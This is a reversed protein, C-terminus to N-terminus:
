PRLMKLFDRGLYTVEQGLEEFLTFAATTTEGLNMTGENVHSFIM